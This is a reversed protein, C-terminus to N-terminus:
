MKKSEQNRNFCRSDAIKQYLAYVESNRQEWAEDKVMPVHFNRELDMMLWSLLRDKESQRSGM